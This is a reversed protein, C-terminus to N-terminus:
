ESKDRPNMFGGPAQDEVHAIVGNILLAAAVIVVGAWFALGSFRSILAGGGYCIVCWVVFLKWNM